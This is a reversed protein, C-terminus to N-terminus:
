KVFEEVSVKEPIVDLELYQDALKQFLKGDTAASPLYRAEPYYDIYPRQSLHLYPKLIEKSRNPNKNVFTVAEDLAKILQSMLKPNKDAFLKSVNFSGFVFPEGMYKPVLAETSIAKAYGQQIATTAAPDNTFLAAVQGGKLAAPQLAPSIPIILNTDVNLNNESLIIELWKKYALTPLVGVKKGVLDSIAFSDPTNRPVLLYSIKHAQDEMMATVFYLERHSRLIANYTIPLAAYGGAHIVDAVLAQMLPQATDFRQLHVNLGHKEFFKMEKAVFIPLSIRLASYGITLDSLPTNQALSANTSVGILFVISYLCTSIFRM